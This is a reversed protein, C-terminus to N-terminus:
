ELKVKELIELWRKVFRSRDLGTLLGTKPSAKEDLAMGIEEVLSLAEGISGGLPKLITAVYDLGAGMKPFVIKQPIGEVRNVLDVHILREHGILKSLEKRLVLDIESPDGEELYGSIVLRLIGDVGKDSLYSHYSKAKRLANEIFWEKSKVAEMSDIKSNRIEHLPKIQIFRPKTNPELVYVGFPGEDSLDVAETAGPTLFVTGNEEVPGVRTHFHGAIVITAGLGEFDKVSLCNHPPTGPPIDHHGQIFNHVLFIKFYDRARFTKEILPKNERFVRSVYPHYPLGTLMIKEDVYFEEVGKALSEGVINLYKALPHKVFDLANNDYSGDHNGRVIFISVDKNYKEEISSVLRQFEEKVFVSDESTMSRKEFLDGAHIVCDVGEEIFINISQTFAHRYARRRLDSVELPIKRGLHTDAFIGIKLNM